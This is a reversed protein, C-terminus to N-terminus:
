ENRPLRDLYWDMPDILPFGLDQLKRKIRAVNNTLLYPFVARKGEEWYRAVLISGVSIREETIADVIKKLQGVKQEVLIGILTGPEGIGLVNTFARVLDRVSIIGELRGEDDVVPFAGVRTKQILLLADQITYTPSLTVPDATMIDRATVTALRERVSGSEFDDMLISPMASRVDRDTVIGLLRGDEDVVPLHRIEHENMLERAKLIPTEASITVVKRTMSKDVFM